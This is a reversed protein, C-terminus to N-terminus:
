SIDPNRYVLYFSRDPSIDPNHYVIHTDCVSIDPNYCVFALDIDPKRCINEPQCVAAYICYSGQLQLTTLHCDYDFPADWDRCWALAPPSRRYVWEGSHADAVTKRNGIVLDGLDTGGGFLPSYSVGSPSVPGSSRAPLRSHPPDFSTM